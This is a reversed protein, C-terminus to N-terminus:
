SPPLYGNISTYGTLMDQTRQYYGLENITVLTPSTAFLAETTAVQTRAQTTAGRKAAVFGLITWPFPDYPKNNRRDLNNEWGPSNANLYNWGRDFYASAESVGFAQPFIQGTTGPYFSADATPAIDNPKFGAKTNDFLIAGISRGLNGPFSSYYAAESDGTKTLMRGFDLLGRYAECNDMLYGINNTTNRPAQFVSILGNPKISLLLNKYAIEKLINKNTNWWTLNNSAQVYATALSLFTGAYADDSDSLVLTYNGNPFMVDQISRNIELRRIYLDLYPRIYLELDSLTLHSVIGLLGLNIFYWNLRGGSAIQYGGAFTGSKIRLNKIELIANIPKPPTPTKPIQAWNVSPVLLNGTPAFCLAMIGFLFGRRKIKHKM